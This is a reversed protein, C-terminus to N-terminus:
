PRVNIGFVDGYSVVILAQTISPTEIVVTIELRLYDVM